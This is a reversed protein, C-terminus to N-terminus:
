PTSDRDPLACGPFLAGLILERAAELARGRHSVRHKEAPAAEAFTKGLLPSFFVPDYGFGGEGVPQRTITGETTGEAIVTARGPAALAVVCRFRATRERPPVPAMLTLLRRINEGDGAGEGAFRASRVGPLGDLADVELGSDDALAPLGTGAATEEAKKVANERFTEGDEVVEPLSPFDALCLVRVPIGALLEGLERAKHRNRTALVILPPAPDGGRPVAAEPAV